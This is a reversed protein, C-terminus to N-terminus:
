GRRKWCNPITAAFPPVPSWSTRATFRNPTSPGSLNARGLNALRDTVPSLRLDSGSVSYGLTLLVEAIGSMGIGGIGVLHIRKFNHFPGTMHAGGGRDFGRNERRRAAAGARARARRTGRAERSSRDVGSDRSGLPEGSLEPEPILRAAGARVMEEANRMQHSDTAAGFPIFIAARGAAAVEAVTIAGSRCVILDAEAFREAM